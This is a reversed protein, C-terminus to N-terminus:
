AGPMAFLIPSWQPLKNKKERMAINIAKGLIGRNSVGQKNPMSIQLVKVPKLRTTSATGYRIV